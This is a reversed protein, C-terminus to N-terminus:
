HMFESEHCNDLDQVPDMGVQLFTPYRTNYLADSNHEWCLSNVPKRKNLRDSGKQLLRQEQAGGGGFCM